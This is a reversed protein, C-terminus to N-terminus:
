KAKCVVVVNTIKGFSLLGMRRYYELFGLLCDLSLPRTLVGGCSVVTIGVCYENVHSCLHRFLHFLQRILMDQFM